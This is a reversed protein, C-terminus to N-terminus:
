YVTLLALSSILLTWVVNGVAKDNESKIIKFIKHSIRKFVRMNGFFNAFNLYKFLMM